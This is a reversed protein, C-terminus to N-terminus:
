TPLTLHTYSVPRARVYGQVVGAVPATDIEVAAAASGAQVQEAVGGQVEVGGGDGTAADADLAARAQERHLRFRVDVEVMRQAAVTAPDLNEPRRAGVHTRGAVVAIAHHRVVVCGVAAAHRGYRRRVPRGGYADERSIRGIRHLDVVIDGAVAAAADIEVGLRVVEM